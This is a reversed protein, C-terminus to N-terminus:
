SHAHLAGLEDGLVLSHDVAQRVPKAALQRKSAIEVVQDRETEPTQELGPITEVWASADAKLSKGIV